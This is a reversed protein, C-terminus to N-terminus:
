IHILSLAQSAFWSKATQNEPLHDLQVLVRGQVHNLLQASATFGFSMLLLSIAAVRLLYNKLLM